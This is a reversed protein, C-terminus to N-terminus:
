LEDFFKIESKESGNTLLARELREVKGRLDAEREASKGLLRAQELCEAEAEDSLKRFSNARQLYTYADAEAKMAREIANERFEDADKRLRKECDRDSRLREVKARLEHEVECERQYMVDALEVDVRLQDREATICVPCVRWCRGREADNHHMCTSAWSAWADVQEADSREVRSDRLCRKLGILTCDEGDALHGNTHLCEAIGARLRGVEAEAREARAKLEVVRAGERLARGREEDWSAIAVTERQRAAALQDRLKDREATLAVVLCVPCAARMQDNHHTCTYAGTLTPTPTSM